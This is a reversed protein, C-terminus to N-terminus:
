VTGQNTQSMKRHRLISFNLNNSRSISTLADNLQVIRLWTVLHWSPFFVIPKPDNITCLICSHRSKHFYTSRRECPNEGNGFRWDEISWKRDYLYKWTQSRQSHYKKWAFVENRKHNTRVTELTWRRHLIKTKEKKRWHDLTQKLFVQSFDGKSAYEMVIYINDM